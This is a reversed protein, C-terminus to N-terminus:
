GHKGNRRKKWAGPIVAYGQLSSLVIVSAKSLSVYAFTAQLGACSQTGPKRRRSHHHPFGTNINYTGHHQLLRFERGYIGSLQGPFNAWIWMSKEHTFFFFEATLNSPKNGCCFMAQRVSVNYFSPNSIPIRM